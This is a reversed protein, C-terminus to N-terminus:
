PAGPRCCPYRGSLCFDHVCCGAEDVTACREPIRRELVIRAADTKDDVDSAPGGTLDDLASQGTEDIESM